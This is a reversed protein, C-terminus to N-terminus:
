CVANTVSFFVYIFCIKCKHLKLIHHM